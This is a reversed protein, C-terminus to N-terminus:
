AVRTICKCGTLGCLDHRVRARVADSVETQWEVPDATAPIRVTTQTGHFENSLKVTQTAQRM